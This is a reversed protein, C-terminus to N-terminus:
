RGGIGTEQSGVDAAENVTYAEAARSLRGKLSHCVLWWHTIKMVDAMVIEM